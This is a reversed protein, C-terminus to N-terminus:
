PGLLTSTATLSLAETAQWAVTSSLKHRPRRLLETHQIVDDAITFTYDLRM